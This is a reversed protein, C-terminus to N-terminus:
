GPPAYGAADTAQSGTARPGTRALYLTDVQDRDTLPNWAEVAEVAVDPFVARLAGEFRAQAPGASWVGLVGGPRLLAAARGLAAPEYFTRHAPRLCADPAHDVDLLIAGYGQPAQLLDRVAADAVLAFVDGELLRCRPDDALRTGLPVLGQRHWAIVEPLLEVVTVARVRDSELAAVATYGLGLGGVLVDHLGDGARDLARRALAVESEHLLSSVLLEDDRKIEYVPEDLGPVRFRRLVVTGLPTDAVALEEYRKRM